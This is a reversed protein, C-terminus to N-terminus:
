PSCYQRTNLYGVVRGILSRSASSHISAWTQRSIVMRLMDNTSLPPFKVYSPAASFTQAGSCPTLVVSVM